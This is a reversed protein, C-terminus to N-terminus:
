SINARVYRSRIISLVETLGHCVTKGSRVLREYGQHGSTTLICEIGMSEAVELDHDTDGVLLVENRELGLENLLRIGNAVKSSAYNDSLGLIRAFFPRIGLHDIASELYPQNYASLVSQALGFQKAEELATQAGKQLSCEHRRQNYLSIYEISVDDFTENAFTFGLHRYYDIVPFGFENKYSELDILPMQRRSLLSNLVEVCLWADDLLTGNFDWIVHKLM